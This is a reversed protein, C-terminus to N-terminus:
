AGAVGVVIEKLKKGPVPKMLYVDVGSAFAEKQSSEAGLGTLAVILTRKVREDVLRSAARGKEIARIERTAEFGNMVPMSIDMFVVDFTREPPAAFFQQVARLGNTATAFTCPMKKLHTALIKLNVPNDDVALIHPNRPPSAPAPPPPPHLSQSPLPPATTHLFLGAKSDVRPVVVVPSSSIPAEPPPTSAADHISLDTTRYPLKATTTSTSAEKGERTGEARKEERKMGGKSEGARGVAREEGNIVREEGKMVREDGKMMGEERKALAAAASAEHRAFARKVTWTLKRPGFPQVLFTANRFSKSEKQRSDPASKCLVILPLGVDSGVRKEQDDALVVDVDLWTKAMATLSQLLATSGESSSGLDLIAVAVEKGRVADIGERGEEEPAASEFNTIPLTVRVVTGVNPTSQVDIVGDLERVLHQVISLGLGVGTSLSNAQSYPTFLQRKLYDTTMGCGTDSVSFSVHTRHSGPASLNNLPTSITKLSVHISGRATYKLANGFINMVIRKWAGPETRLSWGDRREIDMTVVVPAEATAPHRLANTNTPKLAAQSANGMFAGEVVEEVLQALHVTSSLSTMGGPAAQTLVAQDSSLPSRVLAPRVSSPHAAQDHKVLKNIKAFDLLHNTTDILTSACSRIMATLQMQDPDQLVDDLLETSAMIGHLPSRFEHSISSIFDGKATSTVLADLRAVEAMISNSFASIYTMDGEEFSHATDTTWAIAAAYWTEKQYDWLPLFMISRAQPLITLLQRVDDTSPRQAADSRNGNADAARMCPSIPGNEDAYILGGRSNTHILRQLLGEPLKFSKTIPATRSGTSSGLIDCMVGNEWDKSEQASSRRTRGHDSQLAGFGTPCADLFVIGEISTAERILNAARSFALKSGHPPALDDFFPPSGDLDSRQAQLDLPDVDTVSSMPTAISSFMDTGVSSLRTRSSAPSPEHSPPQSTDASLLAEDSPLTYPPPHETADHRAVDRLSSCGAVFVSLGRVLREARECQQKTKLLDLHDMINQAVETMVPMASDGFDDRLASDVVCYSGIVLGASTKLPVELYARFFPWATVYPRDCFTPDRTLDRIRYRTSDAHTNGDDVAACGTADTFCKLTNLCIAMDSAVQTFGMCMRDEPKLNCRRYPLDAAAEAVIYQWQQGILSVFARDCRLRLAGTQTLANLVADDALTPHPASSSSRLRGTADVNIGVAAFYSTMERNRRRELM